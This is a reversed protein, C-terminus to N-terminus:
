EKPLDFPKVVADFHFYFVAEAGTMKGDVYNSEMFSFPSGDDKIVLKLLYYDSQPDKLDSLRDLITEANIEHILFSKCMKDGCPETSEEVSTIMEPTLERLGLTFEM